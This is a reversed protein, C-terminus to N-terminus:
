NLIKNIRYERIFAKSKDTFLYRNDVNINLFKDNVTLLYDAFDIESLLKHFIPLEHLKFQNSDEDFLIIVTVVESGNSSTIIDVIKLM